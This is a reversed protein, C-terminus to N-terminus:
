TEDTKNMYKALEFLSCLGEEWHSALYMMLRFAAYGESWPRSWVAFRQSDFFEEGCFLGGSIRHMSVSVEPFETLSQKKFCGAM